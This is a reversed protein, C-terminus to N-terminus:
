QVFFHELMLPEVVNQMNRLRRLISLFPDVRFLLPTPLNRSHKTNPCWELHTNSNIPFHNFSLFCTPSSTNSLLDRSTPQSDRRCISCSCCAKQVLDDLRSPPSSADLNKFLHSATASGNFHTSPLLSSHFVRFPHREIVRSLRVFITQSKALALM